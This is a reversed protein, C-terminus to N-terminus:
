DNEREMTYRANHFRSDWVDAIRGEKMVKSMEYIGDFLSRGSLFFSGRRDSSVRYNRQDEFRLDTIKMRSRPLDCAAMVAEAVDIIRYNHRALIYTGFGPGFKPDDYRKKVSAMGMLEGADRVHLLPRWQDGGFVTILQGSCAKYTLINVVLDCRLRAHETGLGFLTGLRFIFHEPVKRVFEEAKLKTGAYLSLPNTPSDEDLLDNNAGYVSCTSAFVLRKNHEACLNAIQETAGENVEITRQQNVACAGDGVVAALHLVADHNLIERYILPADRVDGRVFRLSKHRRMYAGGYILDDLVTVEHGLNLLYEVAADGIYGAGGTVLIKKL